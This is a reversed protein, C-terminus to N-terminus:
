ALSKALSNITKFNSNPMGAEYIVVLTRRGLNWLAIGNNKGKYLVYQIEDDVSNMAGIASSLSTFLMANFITPDDLDTKNAIAYGQTGLLLVGKIHSLKKISEIIEKVSRKQKQLTGVQSQGIELEILRALEEEDPKGVIRQKGFIITPLARIKMKSIIEPRKSIDIVQIIVKNEYKSAIKNLSTYAPKCHLCTPSTFFFIQLRNM